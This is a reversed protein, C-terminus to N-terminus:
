CRMCANRLLLASYESRALSVYLYGLVLAVVLVFAFLVITNSNLGFAGRNGYIGGSNAGNSRSHSYGQISIGSVAAFGLFVFLFLIAAWLDNFKPKEVKFAQNFDPKQDASYNFNQGYNPPPGSYGQQQQPPPPGNYGQQQPPENYYQGQQPPYSKQANPDGNYYDAAQGSM